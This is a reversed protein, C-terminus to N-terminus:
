AGRTRADVWKPFQPVYVTIVRLGRVNDGKKALGVVAHVPRTTTFGLILCSNGRPDDPYDELIEGNHVIADEIEKTDLNEELRQQQAHFSFEYSGEVLLRKIDELNM